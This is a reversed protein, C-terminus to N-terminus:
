GSTFSLDEVQLYPLEMYLLSAVKEVNSSIASINNLSDFVNGSVMMNKLPHKIAGGEIMYGGKVVGSFDGNVPNIDGSFRNILVGNEVESILHELGRNGPSLVLNTPDISPITRPGGSAHGTSQVDMANATYSNHLHSKLVGDEVIKLKPIPLGERDFSRCRLGKPLRSHDVLNFNSAAIKEGIKDTFPSMGRLVRNGKLPYILGMFLMMALAQPSLIGTGEFSKAKKAGLSNITSEVLERAVMEVDIDAIYNSGGVKLDENSIEGKDSAMGMALCIYVSSRESESVGRSNVVARQMDHTAFFGDSFSFRDDQNLCTELLLKANRVADQVEFDQITKDYIGKLHSVKKPAPILNNEDPISNKAINYAEKVKKLIVREDLSHVSSFGLRDDHLVRVGVQEKVHYRSMNIENSQIGVDINTDTVLYIELDDINEAKRLINEGLELLRSM